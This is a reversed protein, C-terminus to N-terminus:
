SKLYLFPSTTALSIFTVYGSHTLFNSFKLLLQFSYHFIWFRSSLHWFSSALHSFNRKTTSLLFYSTSTHFLSFNKNHIEFNKTWFYAFHKFFYFKLAGEQLSFSFSLIIHLMHWYKKNLYICLNIYTEYNEWSHFNSSVTSSYQFFM